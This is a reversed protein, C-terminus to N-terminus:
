DADEKVLEVLKRLEVIILGSIDHARKGLTHGHLDKLIRDISNLKENKSLDPEVVLPDGPRDLLLMTILMLGFLHKM